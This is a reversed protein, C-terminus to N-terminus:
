PCQAHLRRLPFSVGVSGLSGRPVGDGEALIFPIPYRDRLLVQALGLRLVDDGWGRAPRAVGLCDVGPVPVAPLAYVEWEFSREDGVLFSVRLGGM